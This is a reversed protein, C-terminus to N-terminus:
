KTAATVEETPARTGTGPPTSTRAAAPGQETGDADGAVGGVVVLRGRHGADLAGPQHSLRVSTGITSTSSTPSVSAVASVM